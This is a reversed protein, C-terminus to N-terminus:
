VTNMLSNVIENLQITAWSERM